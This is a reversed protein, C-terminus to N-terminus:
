LHSGSCGAKFKNKVETDLPFHGELLSATSLFPLEGLEETYELNPESNMTVQYLAAGLPQRDQPHPSASSTYFISVQIPYTM